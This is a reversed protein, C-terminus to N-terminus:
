ATVEAVLPIVEYRYQQGSMKIDEYSGQGNFDLNMWVDTENNDAVVECVGKEILNLAKRSNRATWSETKSAYIVLIHVNLYLLSANRKSKEPNRRNSPISEIILVPSKKDIDDPDHDFVEQVPKGPGVLKTTLLQALKEEVASRDVYLTTM